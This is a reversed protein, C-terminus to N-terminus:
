KKKSETPKTSSKVNKKNKKKGEKLANQLDAQAFAQPHSHREPGPQPQTVANKPIGGRRGSHAHVTPLIAPLITALASKLCGGGDSRSASALAPYEEGHDTTTQRKTQRKAKPNVLSARLSGALGASVHNNYIHISSPIFITLL